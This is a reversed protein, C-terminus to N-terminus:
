VSRWVSLSWSVGCRLVKAGRVRNEYGVCGLPWRANRAARRFEIRKAGRKQMNISITRYITKYRYRRVTEGSVRLCLM